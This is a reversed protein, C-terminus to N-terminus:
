STEEFKRLVSDSSLFPSFNKWLNWSGMGITMQETTSTKKQYSVEAIKPSFYLNPHFNELNKIPRLSYALVKSRLILVEGPDVAM